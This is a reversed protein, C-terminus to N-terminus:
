RHKHICELSGEVFQKVDCNLGVTANSENIWSAPYPWDEIM